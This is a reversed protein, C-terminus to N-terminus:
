NLEFIPLIGAKQAMRGSLQGDVSHIYLKFADSEWRGWRKIEEDSIGCAAMCTASGRRLSHSAILTVPIGCSGVLEKLKASMQARTVVAGSALQFVPRAPDPPSGERLMIERYLRSLLSVSCSLSRPNIRLTRTCRGFSNKTSLLSLTMMVTRSTASGMLTVRDADRLFVDRWKLGKFAQETKLYEVSRLTYDFATASSSLNVLKDFHASSLPSTSPPPINAVVAELEVVQAPVPIKPIPPADQACLDHLFNKAAFAVKFPPDLFNDEHWKDVASCKKSITQGKVGHLCDEYSIYSRLQKQVDPDTADIIVPDDGNAVMYEWYHVVNANSRDLHHRSARSAQRIVINSAIAMKDDSSLKPPPRSRSSQKKLPPVVSSPLVARKVASRSQKSVLFTPKKKPVPGRATFDRCEHQSTHERFLERPSRGSSACPLTYLGAMLCFWFDAMSQVVANAIIYRALESHPDLLCPPPFRLLMQRIMEPTTSHTLVPRGEVTRLVWRQQPATSAPACGNSPDWFDTPFDGEGFGKCPRDIKGLFAIAGDDGGRRTKFHAAEVDQVPMTYFGTATHETDMLHSIDTSHPATIMLDSLDPAVPYIAKNFACTYSRSEHLGASEGTLPSVFDKANCVHPVLHFLPSNHVLEDHPSPEGNPGKAHVLPTCEVIAWAVGFGDYAKGADDLSHQYQMALAAPDSHKSVRNGPRNDNSTAHSTCTPGCTVAEVGSTTLQAADLQSNDQFALTNPGHLDALYERLLPQWESFAAAVAGGSDVGAKGWSGQGESYLGLRIPDDALHQLPHHIVPSAPVHPPLQSPAAKNPKWLIMRGDFQTQMVANIRTQLDDGQALIIQQATLGTHRMLTQLESRLLTTRTVVGFRKKGPPALVSREPSCELPVAWDETFPPSPDLTSDSLADDVLRRVEEEPIRFPFPNQIPPFDAPHDRVHQYFDLLHKLKEWVRRMRLAPPQKLLAPTLADFQLLAAPPVLRVPSKDPHRDSWLKFGQELEREKGKRSGPDGIYNDDTNCRRGCNDIGALTCFIGAFQQLEWNLENAVTHNSLGALVINNDNLHMHIFKSPDLFQAVIPTGLTPAFNEVNDISIGGELKSKAFAIKEADDFFHQLYIGTDEDMMFWGDGSADEHLWSLNAASEKGPFLFRNWDHLSQEVSRTFLIEPNLRALRFVVALSVRLAERAFDPDEGPFAPSPQFNAPPHPGYTRGMDSLM